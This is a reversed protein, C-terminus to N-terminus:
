LLGGIRVMMTMAKIAFRRSLAQDFLRCTAMALWLSATEIPGTLMISLGASRGDRCYDPNQDLGAYREVLDILCTAPNRGAM